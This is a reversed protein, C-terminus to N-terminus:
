RDYYPTNDVGKKNLKNVLKDLPSKFLKHFWKYNGFLKVATPSVGYYCKVFLNGLFSQRLTDDRFRRLTWVQPCDYSGYVCTAIYCGDSKNDPSYLIMKEIEKKSIRYGLKKSMYLRKEAEERNINGRETAHIKGLEYNSLAIYKIEERDNSSYDAAAKLTKIALEVDKEFPGLGSFFMKACYYNRIPSFHNSLNYKEPMDIFNNISKDYNGNLFYVEGMRCFVYFLLADFSEKPIGIDNSSNSLQKLCEDKVMELFGLATVFEHQEIFGISMHYQILPNSVIGFKEYFANGYIRKLKFIYNALKSFEEANDYAWILERETDELNLDTEFIFESNLLDKTKKLLTECTKVAKQYDKNEKYQCYLLGLEKLEELKTVKTRLKSCEEELRQKEDLDNEDM